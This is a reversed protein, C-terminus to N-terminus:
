QLGWIKPLEPDILGSNDRPDALFARIQQAMKGAIDAASSAVPAASGFVSLGCLMTFWTKKM